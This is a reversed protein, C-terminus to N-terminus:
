PEHRTSGARVSRTRTGTPVPDAAGVLAAKLTEPSWGPHRQVLLAAAGAAHPTAMSTGSAATYHADIPNGM